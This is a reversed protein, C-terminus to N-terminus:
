IFSNKVQSAFCSVRDSMTRWLLSIRLLSTALTLVINSHRVVFTAVALIQPAFPHTAFRMELLLSWVDDVEKLVGWCPHGLCSMLALDDLRQKLLLLASSPNHVKVAGRELLVLVPLM